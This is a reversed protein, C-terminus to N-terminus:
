TSSRAASGADLTLTGGTMLDPWRINGWRTLCMVYVLSAAAFARDHAEQRREARTAGLPTEASEQMMTEIYTRAFVARAQEGCGSGPFQSLGASCTRSALWLSALGSLRLSDRNEDAYRAAADGCAGPPFLLDGDPDFDQPPRRVIPRLGSIPFAVRSLTGALAAVAADMDHFRREGTGALLLLLSEAAEAASGTDAEVIGAVLEDATSVPYKARALAQVALRVAPPLAELFASGVLRATETRDFQANM